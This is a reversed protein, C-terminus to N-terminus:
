LAKGFPDVGFLGGMDSDLGLLLVLINRWAMFSMVTTTTTDHLPFLLLLLIL